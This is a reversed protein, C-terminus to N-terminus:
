RAGGEAAARRAQEQEVRGLHEQWLRSAEPSTWWRDQKRPTSWTWPMGMLPMRCHPCRQPQHRAKRFFVSGVRASHRCPVCVANYKWVLHSGGDDPPYERYTGKVGRMFAFKKGWPARPDDGLTPKVRNRAKRIRNM